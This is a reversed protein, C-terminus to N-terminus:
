ERNINQDLLAEKPLSGSLSDWKERIMIKKPVLSFINKGNNTVVIEEEKALEIYKDLHKKLEEISVTVM